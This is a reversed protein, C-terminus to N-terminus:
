FSGGGSGRVKAWPAPSMNIILKQLKFYSNGGSEVGQITFACRAAEVNIGFDMDFDANYPYTASAPFTNDLSGALPTLTWGAGFGTIYAAAMTYVHRHSGVQLAQEMEHSVFFYTTYSAPIVGFDDDFYQGANLIYSNAAGAPNSCGFVIQPQAVNSRYMLEGCWAPVTWYTWKRTLDSVIMKGTFSIHVPPNEAIMGGDINRYDLVLVQMSSATPVGFFCWKASEYNKVWCQYQNASPIADWVSQIEQSVKVPKQGTFIQAGDPGSWMMWDKGASGIGQPNRGVSAISFAGCNDAVADVNWGSPETQDNDETEHLGTGTVMYLAQRITGFNRIPSQDDDAGIVGTIEDFATLNDAYSINAVTDTYPQNTYILETAYIVASYTGSQTPHIAVTLTMDFPITAPTVLSFQQQQWGIGTFTATSTYSTSASALTVIIQFNPDVGALLKFSYQTNPLLIPAGSADLYAPQSISHGTPYVGAIQVAQMNARGASILSIGAQGSWGSPTTPFNPAYGGQFGMNLLNKVTNAGGWALLRSAYTFFGSVPPLVVQNALNNGPISVATAEYLTNDSFDLLISTTTNDNIQTATSVTQGNIQAPVPIYFYYAGGAGTFQLIRGVVNSPGICLNSVVIYQGGSAMFQVSPSPATISGDALLFSLQCQHLGPAIQGYPTVTGVNANTANPGYQQYTFSTTSPTTLVFFIGDWGFTVTGGSWTGDTYSLQITFTLATPATQVQFYNQSPNVNALPWVYTVTGSDSASYGQVVNTGSANTVLGNFAYTFTTDSPVAAVTWQGNVATATGADVQVESGIGLGHAASMTITVFGGAYAVNTIATGVAAGTVGAINVYNNPLLGHPDTMTVTAIGPEDENNLVISSIAGGVVSTGGGTIQAQFGPQLGHASTTLVSVVNNSRTMTISTAPGTLTGTAAQMILPM